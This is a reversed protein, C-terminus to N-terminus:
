EIIIVEVKVIEKAPYIVTSEPKDIRITFGKELISRAFAEANDKQEITKVTIMETSKLYARILWAM